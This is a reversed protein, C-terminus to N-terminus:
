DGLFRVTGAEVVSASSSFDFNSSCGKGSRRWVFLNRSDCERWPIHFLQADLIDKDWDVKGSHRNLSDFGCLSQTLAEIRGEMKCMNTLRKVGPTRRSRCYPPPSHRGIIGCLVLFCSARCSLVRAESHPKDDPSLVWKRPLVRGHESHNAAQGGFNLGIQKDNRRPGGSPDFAEKESAGRFTKNLM